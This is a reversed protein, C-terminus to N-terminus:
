DSIGEALCTNKENRRERRRLIWILVTLGLLSVVAGYLVPTYWYTVVIENLGQSVPIAMFGTADMIEVPEGNVTAKWHKEYPITFYAYRGNEEVDLVASFRNNKMGYAFGECAMVRREQLADSLLKENGLLTEISAHKLIAKVENEKEDPIVLAAAMVAIRNEEEVEAFESELLYSDYSFGIPLAAENEYFEFKQGNSNIFDPTTDEGCPAAIYKAGLFSTTGAPGSLTFDWRGVGIKEYFEFISPSLYLMASSITSLENTMGLNYYTYQLNENFFYRYAGTNKECEAAAETLYNVVAESQSVSNEKFSYFKIGTNDVTSQYVHIASCLNVICLSAVIPLYYKRLKRIYIYGFTGAAGAAILLLQKIFQRQNELLGTGMGDWDVTLIIGTLAITVLIQCLLGKRVPYEDPQELVRGTALVLVLVFMYYWRRYVVYSGMTFLSNLGPIAAFLACLGILKCLWDKKERWLYALWFAAGFLPLYLSDTMWDAGWVSGSVPMLEQPFFFSKVFQMWSTTEMNFFGSANMGDIHNNKALLGNIAPITLIGTIAAGASLELLLQGMQKRDLRYRVLVYLALFVLEGVFFQFNCACNIAAFVLFIGSKKEEVLIELGYLMLPFLAVMDMYQFFLLSTCSFGSFAYMVSCMLVVPEKKVHRSIYLASSLGAVAFKLILIPGMMYPLVKTPIVLLLITFLSGVNYYNFCELFNSGLDIGSNWLIKGSKIAANMFMQFPIGQGSYDYSLAFYGDGRLLFPSIAVLAIVLNLLFAKIWIHKKLMIEM